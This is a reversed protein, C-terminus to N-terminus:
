LPVPPPQLDIREIRWGRQEESSSPGDSVRRLLATGDSVSQSGRLLQLSISVHLSGAAGEVRWPDAINPRVDGLARLRNAFDAASREDSWLAAAETWRGSQALDFYRVLLQRAAEARAQDAAATEGTPRSAESSTKGPPEVTPQAVPMVKGASIPPDDPPSPEQGCGSLLLLGAAFVNAARNM